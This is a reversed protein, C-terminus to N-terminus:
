RRTLAVKMRYPATTSLELLNIHWESAQFVKDTQFTYTKAVAEALTIRRGSEVYFSGLGEIEVEIGSPPVNAELPKVAM